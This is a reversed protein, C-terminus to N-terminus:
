GEDDAPLDGFTVEFEAESMPETGTRERIASISTKSTTM